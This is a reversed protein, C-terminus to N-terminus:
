AEQKRHERSVGELIISVITTLTEASVNYATLFDNILEEIEADTLQKLEELEM